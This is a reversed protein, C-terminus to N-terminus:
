MTKMSKMSNDQQIMETLGGHSSPIEVVLIQAKEKGCGMLAFTLVILVLLTLIRSLSKSSKEYVM